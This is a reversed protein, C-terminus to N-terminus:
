KVISVYHDLMDHSWRHTREPMHMSEARLSNLVCVTRTADNKRMQQVQRDFMAVFEKFLQENFMVTGSLDVLALLQRYTAPVDNEMFFFHSYSDVVGKRLTERNEYADCLDGSGLTRLDHLDIHRRTIPNSFNYGSSVFSVIDQKCFVFGDHAFLEDEQFEQLPTMCVPCTSQSGAAVRLAIFRRRKRQLMQRLVAVIIRVCEDMVVVGVLANKKLCYWKRYGLRRVQQRLVAATKQMHLACLSSKKMQATSCLTSASTFGGAQCATALSRKM